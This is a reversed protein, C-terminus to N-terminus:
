QFGKNRGRVMRPILLLGFLTSLWVQPEPVVGFRFYDWETLSSGGYVGDGWAVESATFVDVFVGNMVSVDDIRLEYTLMNDSRLEFSHFVGPTFTVTVGAEFVSRLNNEDFEFGIGRSADSFLGVTPDVLPYSEDIRLRWQMVFHESSGPDVARRLSYWDTISVSARSDLILSEGDLTRAAGGERTNRTWGENEPFDNGEYAVWYQEAHLTSAFSLLFAFVTTLRAM